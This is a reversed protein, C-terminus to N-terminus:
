PASTVYTVSAAFRKTSLQANTVNAGNTSAYLIVGVSANTNGSFAIAAENFGVTLSGTGSVPTFPLSVAASSANVTSPYTVDFAAFVVNGIRSYTATTVGLTLGAGSTDAPVWTGVRELSPIRSLYGGNISSNFITKNTTTQSASTFECNVYTHRNTGADAYPTKCSILLPNGVSGNGLNMITECVVNQFIATPGDMIQVPFGFFTNNGTCYFDHINVNRMVDPAAFTGGTAIHANALGNSHESRGTISFGDVVHGTSSDTKVFRFTTNFPQGAPCYVDFNFHINQYTVPSTNFVMEVLPAALGVTSDRDYFDVWIDRCGVIYAGGGNSLLSTIQQNKSKVTIWNSHVGYIFFNRGCTDAYIDAHVQDGSYTGAYPYLVNTAKVTVRGLQASTQSLAPDASVWVANRGGSMSVNLEFNQCNDVLKVAILGKIVPLVGATVISQSTVNADVRVNNCRTFQFATADNNVSPYTKTDKLTTGEFIIQVGDLDTFDAIVSGFAPEVRYEGTDIFPFVLTGGGQAQIAAAAAQIASTNNTVGDDVAGFDNVSVIQSLKDEVTYGSTVAGTFPPDYEVSAAGVGIGTAEPFSYVFLDKSDNVTISFDNADVYLQAPTGNRYVYGGSTVLPQSATITLADDYYVPLPNTVPDLNAVGIYINGNDLPQGDRDYFVPYPVQISLAAM